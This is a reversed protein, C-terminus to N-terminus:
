PLLWRRSGVDTFLGGSGDHRAHTVIGVLRGLGDYVGSGSNGPLTMANHNTSQPRWVYPSIMVTGCSTVRAPEAPAICVRQALGVRGVELPLEAFREIGVLALRAIDAQTDVLEAAAHYERGPATTLTIDGKVCAAVHAATLVTRPGVVVGSGVHREEGCVSIVQVARARQQAETTVVSAAAFKHESFMRHRVCGLCTAVSMVILVAAFMMVSRKFYGM